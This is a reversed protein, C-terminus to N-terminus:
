GRLGVIKRLWLTGLGMLVFSGGIMTRGAHTQFLPSMYGHGVASLLLALAFPLGLLVNASTRGMATLARIRLAFQQRQRVSEAVIEFIGALSGGVQRQVVVADLVFDLDTSALRHGLDALADELPRGLRMESLVRGLETATPEPSDTAVAQLAQSFGHGARLASALSGLLEPLQEEFARRRRKIRLKLALRGTILLLVALVLAAVLSAGAATALLALLLSGGAGAYFVEVPQLRIDAHELLEVFAPWFRLRRLRAESAALPRQLRGLLVPTEEASQELVGQRRPELHAAVRRRVARTQRRALLLDALAFVCFAIAFPLLVIV